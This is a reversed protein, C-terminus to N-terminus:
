VAKFCALIKGAAAGAYVMDFQGDDIRACACYLNQLAVKNVVLQGILPQIHSRKARLLNPSSKRHNSSEQAIFISIRLDHAAAISYSKTPHLNINWCRSSRRHLFDHQLIKRFCARISIIKLRGKTGRAKRWIKM